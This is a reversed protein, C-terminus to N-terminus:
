NSIEHLALMHEVGGFAQQWARFSERMQAADMGENDIPRTLILANPCAARIQPLLGPWRCKVARGTGDGLVEAITGISGPVILEVGTIFTIPDM